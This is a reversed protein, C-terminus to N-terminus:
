LLLQNVAIAASADHATRTATAASSFLAFLWVFFVKTSKDHRGSCLTGCTVQSLATQDGNCSQTLLMVDLVAPCCCDPAHHLRVQRITCCLPTGTTGDSRSRSRQQGCKLWRLTICFNQTNIVGHNLKTHTVQCIVEINYPQGM